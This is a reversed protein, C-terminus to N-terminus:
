SANACCAAGTRCYMTFCWCCYSPLLLLLLLLLPMTIQLRELAALPAVVHVILM